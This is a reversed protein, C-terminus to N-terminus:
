KNQINDNKITNVINIWDKENLYYSQHKAFLNYYPLHGYHEKELKM